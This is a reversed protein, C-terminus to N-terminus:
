RAADAIFLLPPLRHYLRRHPNFGWTPFISLRHQSSHFRWLLCCFCGSPLACSFDAFAAGGRTARFRARRPELTPIIACCASEALPPSLDALWSILLHRRGLPYLITYELLNPRLTVNKRDLRGAHDHRARTRRSFQSTHAARSATSTRLHNRLGPGYDAVKKKPITTAISTHKPPAICRFITSAISIALAM